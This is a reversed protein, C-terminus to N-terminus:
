FRWRLGGLAGYEFGGRDGYGWGAWGEGFISLDEKVRHEYGLKGGAMGGDLDGEAFITLDLAGSGVPLEGVEDLRDSARDGFLDVAERMSM